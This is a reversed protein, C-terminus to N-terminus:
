KIEEWSIQEYLTATLPFGPPPNYLLNSDYIINRSQYGSGDTYAFGYGQNVAVSGFLVISQRSHYPSCNPKSDSPKYYYRGVWGNQAVMAADIRIDSESNMGVLVKDQAILGIVDQSDYNTYILDKDVIINKYTKPNYPFKGAAITLKAGNIQGDVWVHDETFIIGNAPFPYNAIFQENGSGTTKISWTKWGKQKLYNKCSKDPKKEIKKVKYIDFTDNTKLIIHYGKSGSSGFYRGGSQAKSKIQTLSETLGNFDVVPVPFQRGANFVDQRVPLVAMPLPDVPLVHTHIAYEDAGSHDPDNYISRASTVLNQATGDFRIGGNSHVPGVVQTGPEFKINGNSIVAYKLFSPIGFKAKVKKETNLSAEVQGTSIVTVISGGSSPPEIDLNFQGIKVGEKNFYNHVYPGPVGTGDQFDGPAHALHWRYYEIGAEAITLALKQDSSRYVARQVNDVWLILGSFIVIALSSFILVVLSLQGRQNKSFQGSQKAISSGRNTFVFRSFNFISFKM